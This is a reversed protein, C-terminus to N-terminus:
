TSKVMRWQIKGHTVVINKEKMKREKKEVKQVVQVNISMKIIVHIM